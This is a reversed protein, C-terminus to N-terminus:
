SDITYSFLGAYANVANSYNVRAGVSLGTGTLGKVTNKLNVVTIDEALGTSSNHCAIGLGAGTEANTLRINELTIDLGIGASLAVPAATSFCYIRSNKLTFRDHTGSAVIINTAPNTMTTYERVLLGDITVDSCTTAITIQILAGLVASVNKMEINKLTLGDGATSVTIASAIDLFNSIILVNELWISQAGISITSTTATTLTLTPRDFGQGLGIVRIGTVDLVCGTASTINETHGPMLFITDGQNATCLGVAADLTTIPNQPSYAGTGSGGSHVWFINGATMSENVVSDIGGPVSRYFLPTKAVTTTM